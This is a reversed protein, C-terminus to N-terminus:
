ARDSAVAALRQLVLDAGRDRHDALDLWCTAVDVFRAARGFPWAADPVIGLEVNWEEGPEVPTMPPLASVDTAMVYGVLRQDDADVPLGFEEAADRGSLVVLGSARVMPLVSRHALHRVFVARSRLKRRRADLAGADALWSAGGERIALWAAEASLPRGRGLPRLHAYEGLVDADVAMVSGVRRAALDGAEIMALVRRHSVGLVVAAEAVSKVNSPM